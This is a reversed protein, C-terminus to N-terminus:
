HKVAEQAREAAIWRQMQSRLMPLTITGHDLLADNFRRLNFSAGLAAEAERRIAFFEQAGSDYSPM